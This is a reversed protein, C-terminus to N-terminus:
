QKIFQRSITRGSKGVMRIIYLGTPLASVDIQESVRNMRQTLKLVGKADYISYTAAGGVEEANTVQANMIPGVPNPYLLFGNNKSVEGSDALQNILAAPTAFQVTASYASCNAKVKWQYISSRTLGTLIYTASTTAPSTTWKKASSLKYQVTYNAAGPIATWSLGASTALLNSTTLGTPAACNTANTTFNVIASYGSCNAKVQWQYATGAQLGTLAQSASIIPGITTWASASSAKYQVTYSSAGTVASWALTASTTALTTTVLNIPANCTGAGETTFSATASFASCDAKVHWDYTQGSLLGSISLTAAATTGASLWTASSSLKYEVSYQTANPVAVWNVIASTSGIGSTTLGTPGAGTATAAVCSANVLRQRIVNGPQSGFGNVFNIGTSTLHCYSMITGGNTPAPGAPCGGETTYCNDLAGGTWGCWQTHNSGFNHGLEHTVVEVTWSYTPVAQYSNYIQSVGFGYSKNCLVDLYAVGGGLSRTSLFHALTGNYNTGTRTRFASLVNSTTTYSVYPDASTYVNIQSIQIDINENQYLTAVQNFFGTVYNTVNTVNSGKDLYLQYDCEFYVTVTKCAIGSSGLRGGSPVDKDQASCSFGSPVKLDKDNYLLHDDSKDGLKGLVYNGKATAIMGMLEGDFLSISVASNEDGQVIDRYHVGGKYDIDQQSNVGLTGLAFDDSTVDVRALELKLPTDGAVPLVLLMTPRPSNILRNLTGQNLRLLTGDSLTQQNQRYPTGGLFPTETEFTHGPRVENLWKAVGRQAFGPTILGVTLLSLLLWQVLHLRTFRHKM